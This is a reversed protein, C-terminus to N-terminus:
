LDYKDGDRGLYPGQKIEFFKTGKAFSLKHGGTLQLLAMNRTLTERGIETHDAAYFVADLRGEMIFIFEATGHVERTVPKHIHAKSTWDSEVVAVGFQMPFHDPTPFSKGEANGLDYVHAVVQGGHEVVRTHM